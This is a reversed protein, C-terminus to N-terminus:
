LAFELETGPSGVQAGQSRVLGRALLGATVLLVMSVAVQAGVLFGRMRSRKEKLGTTLDPKTFQLAPFLGFLIGAAISVALAYVFVRVDPSPDPVFRRDGAFPPIQTLLAWLLKVTVGSVLLGAAGGLLSILVSETLLQRILRGRSAGLAIRTGIERQRAVGRALLMNGVNACAVLLVLGVILMFLAVLATFLNNNLTDFYSTRPLTVSITRDHQPHVSAFQRVLLDTEAQAQTASLRVRALIQLRQQDPDNLWERGPALQAQMSLPAWLAPTRSYLSTGTFEEPTVGIVTFATGNLKITEGLVRADGQFAAQWFPYSLVAVANAGPTSDENPFFTRGLRARIGLSEFYNASVLQGQLTEAAASERLAAGDKLFQVGTEWSTAVLGTFERSHTVLYTYEPYSFAYQDDGHSGSQFWRQLRVVRDPDAVPLPKLAVANYTTFLATNVGIGLALAVVAVITFGPNRALGRVAHRLDQAFQEVWVFSREARHLEKAQEVGGYARRAALSAEAPTLGRREFEDQLLTLHATVERALEREAHGRFLLSSVKAFFRRM